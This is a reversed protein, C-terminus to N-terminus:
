YRGRAHRAKVEATIARDMEALTKAKGAHRLCGVVEELSTPALKKAPRLVLGEFTEEVVFETGPPWRRGDRMAKPLVI